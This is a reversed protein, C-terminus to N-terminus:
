EPQEVLLSDLVDAVRDAASEGFPLQDRQNRSEVDQNGAGLRDGFRTIAAASCNRNNERTPTPSSLTSKSAARSRPIM